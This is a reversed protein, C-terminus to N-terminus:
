FRLVEKVHEFCSKASSVKEQAAYFAGLHFSATAAHKSSSGFTVTAFSLAEKYKREAASLDGDKEATRAVHLIAEFRLENPDDDANKPRSKLM